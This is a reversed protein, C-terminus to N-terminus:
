KGQVICLKWVMRKDVLTVKSIPIDANVGIMGSFINFMTIVLMLISIIKNRIKNKM